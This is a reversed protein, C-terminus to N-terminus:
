EKCEVLAIQSNTKAQYMQILTGKSPVFLLVLGILAIIIYSNIFLRVVKQFDAKYEETLDKLLPMGILIVLGLLLIFSVVTKISDITNVLYIYFSLNNM